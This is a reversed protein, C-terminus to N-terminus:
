IILQSNVIIYRKAHNEASLEKSLELGRATMIRNIDMGPYKNDERVQKRLMIRPDQRQKTSLSVGHSQDENLISDRYKKFMNGLLPKTYLDAVMENTPFYELKIRIDMHRTRKSSSGKGSEELM